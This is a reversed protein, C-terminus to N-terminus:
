ENQKEEMSKRADRVMEELNELEYKTFKLTDETVQLGRYTMEELRSNMPTSPATCSTFAYLGGITIAGYVVLNRVHKCIGM